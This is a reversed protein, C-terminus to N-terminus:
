LVCYVDESTLHELIFSKSTKIFGRIILHSSAASFFTFFLLRPVILSSILIFDCYNTINEEYLRSSLMFDFSKKRLSYFFLKRIELILVIIRDEVM